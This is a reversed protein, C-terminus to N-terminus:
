DVVIPSNASKIASAIQECEVDTVWIQEYGLTMVNFTQTPSTRKRQWNQYATLYQSCNITYTHGESERNTTTTNSLNHSSKVRILEM